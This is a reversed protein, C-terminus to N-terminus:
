LVESLPGGSTSAVSRSRVTSRPGTSRQGRQSSSPAQTPRVNETLEEIVWEFIEMAQTFTIPNQPDRMRAAFREASEEVLANDLFAMITALKEGTDELMMVAALDGIMGGPLDGVAYFVDDDIQFPIPESREATFNKM